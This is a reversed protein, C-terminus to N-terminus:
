NSDCKLVMLEIVKMYMQVMSEMKDEKLRASNYECSFCISDRNIFAEFAMDFFKMLDVKGDYLSRDFFLPLVSQADRDVIAKELGAVPYTGNASLQLKQKMSHFLEMFNSLNKLELSLNSIMNKESVMAQFSVSEEGTVKAILYVFASLLIDHIRLNKSSIIINIRELLDAPIDFKLCGTSRGTQNNHFYEYPLKICSLKRKKARKNQQRIYESLRSISPYAFLDPITTVGPYAREIMTHTQMILISNGGLDFFNDNVGIREKQLVQGWIETLSAEIDDRPSAYETAISNQKMALLAKKDIKGNLTLPFEEIQIIRSPIMYEPLEKGLDQRIQENSIREAATVFAYLQANGDPEISAIVAAKKITRNNSLVSEIEELEIRFGRIKVQNDGRGLYEISGDPMWRALDGTKYLIEKEAFPNEVFREATLGPNNMYGRSVGNGSVCLEGFLGVPMLNNDKNLIYAKVNAIPKGIVFLKESSMGCLATATITGETPGYENVLLIQPCKQQSLALLSADSKEGALVVFRVKELEEEKANELIMRYISPVVSFNTVGTESIVENVYKSDRWYTNNIFVVKGGSLLSPYFNTGFGDFAISLLQVSADQRSHGLRGIRWKVYNFLNRHEVMIGKPKGTSGSTYIVYVLDEISNVREPNAADEKEFEQGDINIIRGEFGTKGALDSHAVLLKINGDGLMYRIREPPYDPDIPLYAGGAKLIGFIGTAIDLSNKVLLGVVSGRTIGNRRLIRALQNARGNLEKYTLREYVKVNKRKKARYQEVLMNIESYHKSIKANLNDDKYYIYPYNYYEMPPYENQEFNMCSYKLYDEFTTAYSYMGFREAEMSVLTGPQAHLRMWHLENFCRYTGMIHYLIKKSAEMDEEDFYPLGAILNIILSTNNYKECTDMFYLIESDTWQPKVLGKSMLLLRHRESLSCIDINWYVHKFTKNVLEFFEGSPLVMSTIACFHGSLDIGEWIRRCYDLLGTDPVDFEFMFTSAYKKAENIDKRVEDVRRRLINKRNFTKVQLSHCGACYLCNMLCGKHTFIYFSSSMYAPNSILIRDLDSLYIDSSNAEDQVYTIPNDVVRTGDRYVCNPLYDEGRCIALLPLEGDGKIICDIYDHKIFEEYYYTATNGGIVVKIHPFRAKIIKCIELARAIHPFWKLSLAVIKPEISEILSCVNEKLTKIDRSADNFQCKATVGNRMLYSALYLIGTSSMGPTEGLLLVDARSVERKKVVAELTGIDVAKRDLAQLNHPYVAGADTEGYGKLRILCSSFYARVARMFGEYEACSFVFGSTGEEYRSLAGDENLLCILLEANAEKVAAYVSKCSAKGNFCQLLSYAANNVIVSKYDSTKLLIFDSDDIPYDLIFPSCEFICRGAKDGEFDGEELGKLIEDTNVVYVLADDDGSEQVQEEFLEVITRVEGFDVSTNNFGTVTEREKGDALEIGTIPLNINGAAQALINKYAALIKEACIEALARNDFTIKVELGDKKKVSFFLQCLGSELLEEVNRGDHINELQFVAKYLYGADTGQGLFELIRNMPYHQNKYGDIVTQKVNLLLEKFTMNKEIHDRLLIFKNYDQEYAEGSSSYVPSVVCIDRTGSLKYLLVKFAALLFVYLLIDQNKSIADLRQALGDGIASRLERRRHGELEGSHGYPIQIEELEGSLKELWYIKADEFEQTSIYYKDAM